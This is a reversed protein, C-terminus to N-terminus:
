CGSATTLRAADTLLLAAGASSIQKGAQADVFNVFAGLQGCAATGEGRATSRMYAELKSTLSTLTGPILGMASTADIM